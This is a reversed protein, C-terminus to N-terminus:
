SNNTCFSLIKGILYLSGTVIVLDDDSANTVAVDLAEKQNATVYKAKALSECDYENILLVKEATETLYIYANPVDFFMKLM